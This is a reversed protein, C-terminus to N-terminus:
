GYVVVTSGYEVYAAYGGALVDFPQRTKGLFDWPGDSRPAYWSPLVFDSVTVGLSQYTNEEVPDGVEVWWSRGDVQERRHIYPDAIMEMVEHSVIVTWPVTPDVGVFALAYPRRHKRGVDHYGLCGCDPADDQLTITWGTAPGVGLELKADGWYPGFDQDLQQQLGPLAAAVESNPLSSQNSITITQASAAGCFALAALTWAALKFKVKSEM